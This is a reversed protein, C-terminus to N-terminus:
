DANLLKYVTEQEELLRKLTQLRNWELEMDKDTKSEEKELRKGGEKRREERSERQSGATYLTSPKNLERM